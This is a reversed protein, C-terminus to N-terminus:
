PYSSCFGKLQSALIPSVVYSAYNCLSQIVSCSILVSFSVNKGHLYDRYNEPFKLFKTCDWQEKGHKFWVKFTGQILGSSDLM